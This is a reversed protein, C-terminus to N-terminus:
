QKQAYLDVFDFRSIHDCQGYYEDYNIKDREKDGDDLADPRIPFIGILGQARKSFPRSMLVKGYPEYHRFTTGWVSYDAIFKELYKIMTDKCPPCLFTRLTAYRVVRENDNEDDICLTTKKKREKKVNYRFRSAVIIADKFIISLYLPIVTYLADIHYGM